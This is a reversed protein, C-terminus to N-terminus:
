KIQWKCKESPIYRKYKEFQAYYMPNKNYLIKRYVNHFSYLGLEPLPTCNLFKPLFAYIKDYCTDKYGRQQWEFCIALGYDILQSEHRRWMNVIPHHQWGYNPNDIAKLIQLVEVRQKGLRQRDLCKATKTFSKYPLFTQM